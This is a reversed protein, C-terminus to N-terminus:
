AHSHCIFPLTVGSLLSQNSASDCAGSEVDCDLVLLELDADPQVQSGNGFSTDNSATAGAPTIDEILNQDLLIGIKCDEDFM